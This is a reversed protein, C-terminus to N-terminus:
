SRIVEINVVQSTRHVTVHLFGVSFAPRTMEVM